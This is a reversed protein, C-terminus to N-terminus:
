VVPHHTRALLAQMDSPKAASNRPQSTSGHPRRARLWRDFSPSESDAMDEDFERVSSRQRVPGATSESGMRVSRSVWNAPTVTSKALAASADRDEDAISTAVAARLDPEGRQWGVRRHLM